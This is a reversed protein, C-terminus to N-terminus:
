LTHNSMIFDSDSTCTTFLYEESHVSEVTSQIWDVSAQLGIFPKLTTSTWQCVSIILLMRIKAFKILILSLLILNCLHNRLWPSWLEIGDLIHISNMLIVWPETLCTPKVSIVRNSCHRLSAVWSKLDRLLMFGWWSSQLHVCVCACESADKLPVNAATLHNVTM